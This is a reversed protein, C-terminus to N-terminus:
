FDLNNLQGYSEEYQQSNEMVENIRHQLNNNQNKDVEFDFDYAYFDTKQKM